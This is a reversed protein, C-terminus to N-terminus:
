WIVGSSNPSSSAGNLAIEPPSTFCFASIMRSRSSPLRSARRSTTASFAAADNTAAALASEMASAKGIACADMSERAAIRLSSASTANVCFYLHHDLNRTRLKIGSRYSQFRSEAFSLSHRAGFIAVDLGHRLGGAGVLPPDGSQVSLEGVFDGRMAAFHHAIREM